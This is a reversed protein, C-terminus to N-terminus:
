AKFLKKSFFNAFKKFKNKVFVLHRAKYNCLFLDLFFFVLAFSKIYFKLNVFPRTKRAKTNM